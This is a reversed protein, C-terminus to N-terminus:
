HGCCGTIDGRREMTIHPIGVEDYVDSIQKFGVREYFEKCYLQAHISQTEAGADFAKRILMRIVLDGIGDGRFEKLVAIRGLVARKNEELLVRGTAMPVKGDYVILHMAVADLDDFEEERCINQEEVFVKERIYFPDKLDDKASLWSTKIM